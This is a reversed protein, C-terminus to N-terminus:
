PLDLGEVRPLPAVAFEDVARPAQGTLEAHVTREPGGGHLLLPADYRVLFGNSAYWLTWAGQPTRWEYGDVPVPEGGVELVAPGLGVVPGELIKGIDASLIRVNAGTALKRDSEPDFLDVTSLDVRAPPLAYTRTGDPEAITVHWAGDAFRGQIEHPVGDDETVAHFSAPTGDRANATLRQRWAYATRKRGGALETWAEVVRVRTDDEREYHVKVTLTRVPVGDVSLAWVADIEPAPSDAEAPATLLWWWM